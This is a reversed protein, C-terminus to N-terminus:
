AIGANLYHVTVLSWHNTLAIATFSNPRAPKWGATNLMKGFMIRLSGSANPLIWFAAGQFRASDKSHLPLL